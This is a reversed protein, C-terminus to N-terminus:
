GAVAPKSTDWETEGEFGNGEVSLVVGEVPQDDFTINGGFYFDTVEQGDDTTEAWATGAPIGLVM